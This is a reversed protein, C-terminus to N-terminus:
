ILRGGGDVHVVEGTISTSRMLFLAAEAIDEAQALQKVPLTEAVSSLVAQKNEGLIPSWMETDTWGPAIANFRIPALELALVRALQEAAATGVGSVWAGKVPRDTSVGGIFTFSGGAPVKTAAARVIHVAGQLRTLIPRIQEAVNGELVNSLMTSGATIFIHDIHSYGAMFANVAQEDLVDFAAWRSIGLAQAASKTKAETLGTISVRAGQALTLKATAYGIGSSGGIIIIEQSKIEMDYTTQVGCLKM